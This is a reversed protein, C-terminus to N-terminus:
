GHSAGNQDGPTLFRRREPPVQASLRRGRQVLVAAYVAFTGFTVLFSIWILPWPDAGTVQQAVLANM